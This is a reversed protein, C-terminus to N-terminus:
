GRPAGLCLGFCRYKKHQRGDVLLVGHAGLLVSPIMNREHRADGLMAGLVSLQIM